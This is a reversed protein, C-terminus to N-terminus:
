VSSSAVDLEKSIASYVSLELVALKSPINMYLNYISVVWYRYVKLFIENIVVNEIRGDLLQFVFLM